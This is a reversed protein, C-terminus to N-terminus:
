GLPCGRSHPFANGDPHRPPQLHLSFALPKDQGGAVHLEAPIPIPDDRGSCLRGSVVDQASQGFVLYALPIAEECRVMEVPPFHPHQVHVRPRIGGQGDGAGPLLPLGGQVQTGWRFHQGSQHLFLLRYAHWWAWSHPPRARALWARAEDPKDEELSLLAMTVAVRERPDLRWARTGCTWGVTHLEPTRAWLWAAQHCADAVLPRVATYGVLVIGVVHLAWAGGRPRRPFWRGVWFLLPTLWVSLAPLFVWTRPAMHWLVALLLTPLFLRIGHGPGGDTLLLSVWLGLGAVLLLPIAERGGYVYAWGALLALGWGATWARGAPDPSLSRADEGRAATALLLVWLMLTAPTPFHLQWMLLLVVAASWAGAAVPDGKRWARRGGVWLFWGVSWLLLVVGAIGFWVGVDLFLNHARDFMHIRGDPEFRQLIRPYAQPFILGLTDAGFGFFVREPHLRFLRLTTRWVWIRQLLTGDRHLVNWWFGQPHRLAWLILGLPLGWMGTWWAVSLARGRGRLWAWGALALLFWVGLLAARSGVGIGATLFLGSVLAWARARTPDGRAAWALGALYAAGAVLAPGLFTRNGLLGGDALAPLMARLSEDAPSPSMRAWLLVLINLFGAVSLTYGLDEPNGGFRWWLYGLLVVGLWVLVGMYRDDNGWLAVHPAVSWGTSLVLTLLFAGSWVRFGRTRPLPYALAAVGGMLGYGVLALAKGGQFPVRSMPALFCWALLLAWLPLQQAIAHSVRKDM